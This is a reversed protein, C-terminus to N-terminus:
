DDMEDIYKLFRSCLTTASAALIFKMENDLDNHAMFYMHKIPYLRIAAVSKDDIFFEYGIPFNLGFIVSNIFSKGKEYKTIPKIRIITDGNSLTVNDKANYDREMEGESDVKEQNVAYLNWTTNTKKYFM